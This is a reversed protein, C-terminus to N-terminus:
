GSRRRRRERASLSWRDRARYRHLTKEDVRSIVVEGKKDRKYGTRNGQDDFVPIPVGQQPDGIGIPYIKLGVKAAKKAADLPESHMIKTATRSCFWFM